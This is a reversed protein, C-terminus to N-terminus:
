LPFAIKIGNKTTNIYDRSHEATCWIMGQSKIDANHLRTGANEANEATDMCVFIFLNYLM